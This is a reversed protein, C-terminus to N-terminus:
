TRQRVGEYLLVAAAVSANLSDVGGAVPLTLLGDAADVWRPSLGTDERGVVIAVRGALDADWPPIGGTVVAAVTPVQADQLRDIAAESSTVALPVTFVAGTSARVVNPNFVDVTPDAVVVGHAGAAAATRLMAGLNGPKEIGEVVLVLLDPRDWPIRGLETAFCRAVALVGDRGYAVKDFAAPGLEVVPVDAGSWERPDAGLDPALYLTDVDVGAALARRVERAGEVLFRGTADRHRRSRLRALAKIRPNSPSDIRVPVSLVSM